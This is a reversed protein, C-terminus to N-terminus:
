RWAASDRRTIVVHPRSQFARRVEEEMGNRVVFRSSACFTPHPRAGVPTVDTM